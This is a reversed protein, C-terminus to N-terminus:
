QIESIECCSEFRCNSGPKVQMNGKTIKRPVGVAGPSAIIYGKSIALASTNVRFGDMEMSGGTNTLTVPNAPM